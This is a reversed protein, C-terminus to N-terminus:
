KLVHGVLGQHTTGLVLGLCAVIALGTRLQCLPALGTGTVPIIRTFYTKYMRTFYTKYLLRFSELLTPKIHVTRKYICYSKM